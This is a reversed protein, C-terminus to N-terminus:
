SHLHPPYKCTPSDCIQLWLPFLPTVKQAVYDMVAKHSLSSGESRVVFAVPVEGAVEDKGATVATDDIEPHSILAEELDGPAIQFGKYKIVDKLRDVIYLYGDLDFFVIDGTRLWGDKDVAERSAEENNLYGKMIGPGRLWLEGTLGPSMLSGTVWDVVKAQMNPALLGVSFYKRLNRTNFGRTGVASSETLGYGQIFDVHPLAQVFDDIVKKTTYSAGVSVQKLSRLSGACGGKAKAALAALIPPVVPFHTVKHQAIAQVAEDISFRSMVVIGSGLSLLGIVFLSLGYIHFMPLAALYVNSSSTEDYQSAECRVFLEATAILNGHSLVVGKSAGTTGSSYLIAATDDQHIAPRSILKVDGRPKLLDCYEMFEQNSSFADPVQIASVGMENLKEVHKAGCFGLKVNAHAAQKQVEFESSLPSMSTVVGGAYLVSLFLVPFLLSNPLLILVVDGKQIGKEILGFAMSQVLPFLDSYSVSYGAASDILATQGDHKQSFTFTVVDIDPRTPLQVTPHLSTYIGTEPCFWDLGVPNISDNCVVVVSDNYSM